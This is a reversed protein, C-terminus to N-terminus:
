LKKNIECILKELEQILYKGESEFTNTNFFKKAGEITYKKVHLLNRIEELQKIQRESYYRTGNPKKIPNLSPFKKEWFRIVHIPINLDKSVEGIKKLIDNHKTM